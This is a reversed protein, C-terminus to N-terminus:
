NIYSRAFLFPPLPAVDKQSVEVQKCELQLFVFNEFIDLGIAEM